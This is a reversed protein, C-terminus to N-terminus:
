RDIYMAKDLHGGLRIAPADQLFPNITLIDGQNRSCQHLHIIVNHIFQRPLNQQQQRVNKSHHALKTTLLSITSHPQEGHLSSNTNHFQWPQGQLHFPTPIRGKDLTHLLKNHGLKALLPARPEVHIHQRHVCTTWTGVQILSDEPQISNGISLNKNTQTLKVLQYNLVQSPQDGNLINNPHRNNNSSSIM